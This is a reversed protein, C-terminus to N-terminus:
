SAHKKFYFSSYMALLIVLTTQICISTPGTDTCPNFTSIVVLTDRMFGPQCILSRIFHFIALDVSEGFSISNIFTRVTPHVSTGDRVYRVGHMLVHTHLYMHALQNIRVRLFLFSGGGMGCGVAVALLGCCGCSVAVAVAVM